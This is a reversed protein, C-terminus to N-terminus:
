VQIAYLGQVADRAMAFHGSRWLQTRQRGPDWPRVDGHPRFAKSLGM